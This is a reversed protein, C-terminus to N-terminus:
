YIDIWIFFIFRFRYRILALSSCYTSLAKRRLPSSPLFASFSSLVSLIFFIPFSYPLSSYLIYYIFLFLRSLEIPITVPQVAPTRIGAPAFNKEEACRGSRSQPGSLRTCLPYWPEKGPSLARRPTLSVVWRWRTSLHHITSSYRWEGM